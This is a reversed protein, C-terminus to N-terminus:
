AETGGSNGRDDSKGKQEQEGEPPQKTEPIADISGPPPPICHKIHHQAPAIFNINIPLSEGDKGFVQHKEIFMGFAKALNESARMKDLLDLSVSGSGDGGFYVKLGNIIVKAQDSLEKLPKPMLQGDPGENFMEDIPTFVISSWFRILDDAKFEAKRAREAQGSEIAEKINDKTLLKCGLVKASKDSYGAKIASQTANGLSGHLYEHVFIAQRPTLKKESEMPTNVM